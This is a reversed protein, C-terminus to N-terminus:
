VPVTSATGAKRTDESTKGDAAYQKTTCDTIFYVISPSPHGHPKDHVGKKRLVEIVRFNADEYILKYVDPDAKYTPEATQAIAGSSGLAALMAASLLLAMTMTKM